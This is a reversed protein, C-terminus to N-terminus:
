ARDAPGRRAAASLDAPPARARAAAAGDAVRRGGGGAPGGAVDQARVVGGGAGLEAGGLDARDEGCAHLCLYPVLPIGAGGAQAWGGGCGTLVLLALMARYATDAHPTELRGPVIVCRGGTKEATM